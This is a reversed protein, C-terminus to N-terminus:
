YRGPKKELPSEPLWVRFTTGSDLASDVEIRGGATEVMDNILRLGIGSGEIEPHLRVLNPLARGNRPALDMGLGNDSVQVEIDKAQIGPVDVRLTLAKEDETVDVAPWPVLEASFSWPEEFFIVSSWHVGTKPPAIRTESPNRGARRARNM